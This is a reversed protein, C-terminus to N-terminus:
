APRRSPLAASNRQRLLRLLGPRSQGSRVAAVNDAFGRPQHLGIGISLQVQVRRKFGDYAYQLKNGNGDAHTAVLNDSSYTFQERVVSGRNVTISPDLPMLRKSYDAAGSPDVLSALSLLVLSALLLPRM